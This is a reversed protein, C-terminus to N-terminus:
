GQKGDNYDNRVLVQEPDVSKGKHKLELYIWGSGDVQGIKQKRCVTDGLKIELSNIGAVWVINDKDKEIMVVKGLGVITSAFVVIGDIPSSVTTTESPAYTIGKSFPQPAEGYHKSIPANIPHNLIWSINIKSTQKSIFSQEKPANISSITSSLISERRLQNQYETPLAFSSQAIRLKRWRSHSPKEAWSFSLLLLFSLAIRYPM